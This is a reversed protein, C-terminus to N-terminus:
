IPFLIACANFHYREQLWRLSIHVICWLGLPAMIAIGGVLPTPGPHVKRGKDPFDIVKLRQAIPVAFLCIAMSLLAAYTLELGATVNKGAINEM